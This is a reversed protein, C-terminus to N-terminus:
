RNPSWPTNRPVEFDGAQVVSSQVPPVPYIEQPSDKSKEQPVAIVPVEPAKKYDEAKDRFVGQDGFLYGCGSLSVLLAGTIVIRQYLSKSM